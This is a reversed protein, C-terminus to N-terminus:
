WVSASPDTASCAMSIFYWWTAPHLNDPDWKPAVDTTAGCQPNDTPDVRLPNRHELTTAWQNFISPLFFFFFRAYLFISLSVVLIPLAIWHIGFRGM